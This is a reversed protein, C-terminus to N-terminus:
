FNRKVKKQFEDSPCNYVCARIKIPVGRSTAVSTQRPKSDRVCCPFAIPYLYHRHFLFLILTYLLHARSKVSGGRLPHSNREDQIRSGQSNSRFTLLANSVVRLSCGLRACSELTTHMRVTVRREGGATYM